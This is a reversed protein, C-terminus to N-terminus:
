AHCIDGMYLICISYMKLFGLLLNQHYYIGIHLILSNTFKNSWVASIRTELLSDWHTKYWQELVCHQICSFSCLFIVYNWWVRIHSFCFSTLQCVSIPWLRSVTIYYTQFARKVHILEQGSICNNTSAYLDWYSM